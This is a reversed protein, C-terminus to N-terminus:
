SIQGELYKKYKEKWESEPYELVETEVSYTYDPYDIRTIEADDDGMWIDANNEHNPDSYAFVTGYDGRISSFDLYLGLEKWVEEEIAYFNRDDCADMYTMYDEEDDWDEDEDGKIYDSSSCSTGALIEDVTGRKYLMLGDYKPGFGFIKATGNKFEFIYGGNFNYGDEVADQYNDWYDISEIRSINGLYGNELLWESDEATVDGWDLNLLANYEGDTISGDNLCSSFLQERLMDESKSSANIKTPAEFPSGANYDYDEPNVDVIEIRDVPGDWQRIAQEKADQPSRAVIEFIEEAAEPGYCDEANCEVEHWIKVVYLDADTPDWSAKISKPKVSFKKM